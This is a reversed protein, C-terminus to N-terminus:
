KFPSNEKELIRRHATKAQRWGGYGLEKAIGKWFSVKGKVPIGLQNVRHFLKYHKNKFHKKKVVKLQSQINSYIAKLEAFSLDRVKIKINISFNNLTEGTPLDQSTLNWGTQARRLIPPIGTLIFATISAGEFGTAKEIIDVAESIKHLKENTAYACKSVYGNLNPYNLTPREFGVRLFPIHAKMVEQMTKAYAEKIGPSLEKEKKKIWTVCKKINNKFLPKTDGSIEKRVQEVYPTIKKVLIESTILNQPSFNIIGTKDKNTSVKCNKFMYALRIVDNVDNNYFDQKDKTWFDLVQKVSENDEKLDPQMNARIRVERIFKGKDM